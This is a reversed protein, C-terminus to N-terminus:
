KHDILAVAYNIAGVVLKEALGILPRMQILEAYILKTRIFFLLIWSLKKDGSLGEGHNITVTMLLVSSFLARSGAVWEYM